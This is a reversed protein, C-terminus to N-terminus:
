YSYSLKKIDKTGTLERPKSKSSGSEKQMNSLKYLQIVMIIIPIVVSIISSLLLNKTIEYASTQLALSGVNYATHLAATSKYAEVDKKSGAKYLTDSRKHILTSLFHFLLGPIRLLPHVGMRIYLLMETLNFLLFHFGTAKGKVSLRKIAEEVVPGVCVAALTQMLITFEASGAAVGLFPAAIFALLLGLVLNLLIVLIVLSVAITIKGPNEKMEDVIDQCTSKVIEILTEKDKVKNVKDKFKNTIRDVTQKEDGDLSEYIYDLDLFYDNNILNEVELLIM